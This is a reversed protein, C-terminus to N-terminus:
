GIVIFKRKKVLNSITAQLVHGNNVKGHVKLLNTVRM